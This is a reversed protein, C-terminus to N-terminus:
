RIEVSCEQLSTETNWLVHISSKLNRFYHDILLILFINMSFFFLAQLRGRQNSTYLFLIAARPKDDSINHSM